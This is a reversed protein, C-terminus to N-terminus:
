VQILPFCPDSFFLYTGEDKLCHMDYRLVHLDDTKTSSYSRLRDLLLGWQYDVNLFSEKRVFLTESHPKLEQGEFQAYGQFEKQCRYPVSSLEELGHLCTNGRLLSNGKFGVGLNLVSCSEHLLLKHCTSDIGWCSISDHQLEPIRRSFLYSNIASNTRWSDFYRRFSEVMVGLESVTGNWVYPSGHCFQWTFSNMVIDTGEVFGLICKIFDPPSDFGLDKLYMWNPILYLLQGGSFKFKSDLDSLLGHGFRDDFVKQDGSSLQKSFVHYFSSFSSCSSIESSSLSRKLELELKCVLSTMTLSDWDCEELLQLAVSNDFPESPVAVSLQLFAILNRLNIGDNDLICFDNKNFRLCTCNGLNARDIKRSRLLPFASVVCLDNLIAPSYLLASISSYISYEDCNSSAFSSQEIYIDLVEGFECHPVARAYVQCNLSQSLLTEIMEIQFNLCFFIFVYKLRGLIRISKDQGLTGLDGSKLWGQYFDESVDRNLYKKIVTPGRYLLEGYGYDFITGDTLIAVDVNHAFGVTNPLSNGSFNTSIQGAAETMGM